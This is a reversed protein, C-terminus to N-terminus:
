STDRKFRVPCTIMVLFTPIKVRLCAGTIFHAYALCMVPGWIGHTAPLQNAQGIQVLSLRLWYLAGM